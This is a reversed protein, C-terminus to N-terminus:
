KTKFKNLLNKWWSIKVIKESKEIKSVDVTALKIKKSNKYSKKVADGTYKKVSDIVADVMYVNPRPKDTNWIFKSGTSKTFFNNKNLVTAYVPNLGVQKCITGLKVPEKGNYMTMLLILVKEQKEDMM